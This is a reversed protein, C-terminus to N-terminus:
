GKYRLHCQTTALTRFITVGLKVSVLSNTPNLKERENAASREGM